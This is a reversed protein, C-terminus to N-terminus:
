TATRPKPEAASVSSVKLRTREPLLRAQMEDSSAFNSLDGPHSLLPRSKRNHSCAPLGFVAQDRAAVLRLADLPVSGFRSFSVCRLDIIRIPLAHATANTTMHRQFFFHRPKNTKAIRETRHAVPRFDAIFDQPSQAVGIRNTCPVRSESQGRSSKLANTGFHFRWVEQMDNFAAVMRQPNWVGVGLLRRFGPVHRDM